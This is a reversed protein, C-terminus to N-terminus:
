WLRYVKVAYRGPQYVTIKITNVDIATIEGISTEPNVTSIVTPIATVQDTTNNYKNDEVKAAFLEATLETTCFPNSIVYEGAEILNFHEVPHYLCKVTSIGTHKIANALTCSAPLTVREFRGLPCRNANTTEGSWPNFYWGRLMIFLNTMAIAPQGKTARLTIKIKSVARVVEDGTYMIKKTMYGTGSRRLVPFTNPYAHPGVVTETMDGSTWNPVTTYEISIEDPVMNALMAADDWIMRLGVVGSQPQPFTHTIVVSTAGATSKLNVGDDNYLHYAANDGLTNTSVISGWTTHTNGTLYKNLMVNQGRQEATFESPILDVEPAILGADNKRLFLYAPSDLTPLDISGTINETPAMENIIEKNALMGFNMRFPAVIGYNGITKSAVDAYSMRVRVAWRLSSDMKAATIVLKISQGEVATFSVDLHGQASAENHVGFTSWTTNSVTAVLADDVYIKMGTVFGTVANTVDKFITLGDFKRKTHFTYRLVTETITSGTEQFAAKTCFYDSFAKAASDDGYLYRNCEALGCNYDYDTPSQHLNYPFVVLTAPKSIISDEAGIPETGIAKPKTVIYPIAGFNSETIQKTIEEQVITPISDEVANLQATTTYEAHTHSTPAAGCQQPTHTHGTKSAGIMESTIGHPNTTKDNMHDILETLDGSMLSFEPHTHASLAAGIKAPTIGHPNNQDSVHGNVQDVLDSMTDTLVATVQNVISIVISKVFAEDAGQLGLSDLIYLFYDRFRDTVRHFGVSSITVFDGPFVDEAVIRFSTIDANGIYMEINAEGVKSIEAVLADTHDYIRVFGSDLRSVDLNLYYYGSFPIVDVPIKLYNSFAEMKGTYHAQDDVIDWGIIEWPSKFLSNILTLSVVTNDRFFNNDPDIAKINSDLTSLGMFLAFSSPVRNYQNDKYNQSVGVIKSGDPFQVNDTQVSTTILSNPTQTTGAIIKPNYIDAPDFSTNPM